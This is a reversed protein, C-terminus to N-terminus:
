LKTKKSTASTKWDWSNYFRCFTLSVKVVVFIVFFLAGLADLHVHSQSLDRSKLPSKTSDNSKMLDSSLNVSNHHLLTAIEKAHAKLDKNELMKELKKLLIEKKVEDVRITTM